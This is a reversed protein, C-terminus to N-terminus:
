RGEVQWSASRGLGATGNGTGSKAHTLPCCIIINNLGLDGVHQIGQGSVSM